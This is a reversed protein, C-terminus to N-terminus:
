TLYYENSADELVDSICHNFSTPINKVEVNTWYLRPRNQPVFFKSNIEIPEVGLAESIIDQWEKKMKVNELLFYTPKVEKLIRVYEWFLGSKGDFGAGRGANSFSQCPSGGILLDIKPLNSAKVDLVSGVQLTNPYNKMTVKIAEKEIESAFYKNVKIKAKELAIQGCSMGDFLSLVNLGTSGTVGTKCSQTKTNESHKNQTM